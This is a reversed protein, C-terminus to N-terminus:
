GRIELSYDKILNHLSNLIIKGELKVKKEDYNKILTISNKGYENIYENSICNVSDSFSGTIITFKEFIKYDSDNEDLTSVLLFNLNYENKFKNIEELSNAKFIFGNLEKNLYRIIKISDYPADYLKTKKDTYIKITLPNVNEKMKDYKQIDVKFFKYPLKKELSLHAAKNFEKIIKKHEPLKKNYFYVISYKTTNFFQTNEQNIEIIDEDCIIFSLIILFILTYMKM